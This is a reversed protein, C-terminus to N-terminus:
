ALVPVVAKVWCSPVYSETYISSLFASPKPPQPNLTSMPTTGGPRCINAFIYYSYYSYPPNEGPPSFGPGEAGRKKPNRTRVSQHVSVRCLRLPPSSLHRMMSLAPSQNMLFCTPCFSSIIICVTGLKEVWVAARNGPQRDYCEVWPSEQTTMLPAIHLTQPKPTLTSPLYSYTYGM